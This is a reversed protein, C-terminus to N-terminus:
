KNKFSQNLKKIMNEEFEKYHNEILEKIVKKMINLKNQLIKSATNNCTKTMANFFKNKLEKIKNQKKISNQKKLEKSLEIGSIFNAKESNCCECTCQINEKINEGFKSVPIIHDRNFLTYITKENDKKFGYLHLFFEKKNESVIRFHSAKCGCISCKIEKKEKYINYLWKIYKRNLNLQYKGITITKVYKDILEFIKDLKLYIKSVKYEKNSILFM